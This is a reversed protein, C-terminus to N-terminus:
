LDQECDHVYVCREHEKDTEVQLYLCKNQQYVILISDDSM